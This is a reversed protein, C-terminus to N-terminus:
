WLKWWPRSAAEAPDPPEGPPNRIVIPPAGKDPMWGQALLDGVYGLVTQGQYERDARARRSMSDDFYTRVMVRHTEEGRKLGVAWDTGPRSSGDPQVFHADLAGEIRMLWQADAM